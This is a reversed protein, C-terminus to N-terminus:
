VEAAELCGWRGGRVKRGRLGRVAEEEYAEEGERGWRASADREPAVSVAAVKRDVRAGMQPSASQPELWTRAAALFYRSGELLSVVEEESALADRRPRRPVAWEGDSTVSWADSSGSASSPGCMFYDSASDSELLPEAERSAGGGDLEVLWAPAARAAESSTSLATFSGASGPPLLARVVQALSWTPATPLALADGGDDDAEDSEPLAPEAPLRGRAVERAGRQGTWAAKGDPPLKKGWHTNCTRPRVAGRRALLCEGEWPDAGAAKAVGSPRRPPPKRGSRRPRRPAAVLRPRSPEGDVPSVSAATVHVGFSADEAPPPGSLAHPRAVVPWIVVEPASGGGPVHHLLLKPLFTTANFEPEGEGNDALISGPGFPTDAILASLM